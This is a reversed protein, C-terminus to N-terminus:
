TVTYSVPAFSLFLSVPAVGEVPDEIGTLMADLRLLEGLDLAVIAEAVRQEFPTAAPSPHM